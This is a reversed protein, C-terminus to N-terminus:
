GLWAMPSTADFGLNTTVQIPKVVPATSVPSPTPSPFPGNHPGGPTPTPTPVPSPPPPNYANKPLFWLQFPGTPGGPALYAIGSGDPAWIPQAVLQNSIVTKLPGLSSGNWSALTLSSVQKGSTCIMAINAGDPSVAPSACGVAQSTLSKGASGARNTFWLQSVRNSESDYSYKTYIIGGSAPVPQVDGGTYDIPTTWSRGQRIPAGVPVAWISMNINYDDFGYGNFYGYKPGDYSMWLTRQDQSLRPYFSWTNAGTDWRDRPPAINNTLQGTVNGFRTLTYVDSYMASRKVALLNNGDPYLAPQMWGEEPTLQHFRGASFSYLAGSQALYITGPLTFSQARPTASIPKQPPAVSKSQRSGIYLYSTAGSVVMLIALGAALLFRPIM